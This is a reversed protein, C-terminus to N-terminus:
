ERCSKLEEFVHIELGHSEELALVHGPCKGGALRASNLGEARRLV